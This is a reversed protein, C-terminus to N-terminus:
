EEIVEYEWKYNYASKRKKRCCAVINKLKSRTPDILFNAAEISSNWINVIKNDFDYQIIRKARAKKSANTANEIWEKHKPRSNLKSIRQKASETHKYNLCGVEGGKTLNTLNFGWQLFQEIWYQEFFEWESEKIFDLEEIIPKSNRSLISKIWNVNHSKNKLNQKSCHQNLRRNLKSKTKGVYRIEHTFPDKLTYIYIM